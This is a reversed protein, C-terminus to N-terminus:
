PREGMALRANVDDIVDLLDIPEDIVYHAGCEWLMGRTKELRRQLEAESMGAIEDLSDIDM